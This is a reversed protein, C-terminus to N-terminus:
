ENRCLVGKFMIPDAFWKGCNQCNWYYGFRGNPDKLEILHENAKRVDGVEHSKHPDIQGVEADDQDSM